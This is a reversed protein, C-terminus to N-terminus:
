KRFVKKLAPIRIWLLDIERGISYQKIFTIVRAFYSKNLKTKLLPEQPEALLKIGSFHGSICKSDVYNQMILAQIRTYIKEESALLTPYVFDILENAKQLTSNNESIEYACLLIKIKRLDQGTWTDNPYELVAKNALYYTENEAMWNAYHIFAAKVSRLARYSATSPTNNSNASIGQSMLYLYEAVAQLFVTYFWTEEINDFHRKSIDDTSSITNLIVYEVQRLYAQQQTIKFCDLLVNINNGTGRDLPYQNTFINRLDGTGSGL